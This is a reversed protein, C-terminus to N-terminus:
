FIETKKGRRINNWEITIYNDRDSRSQEHLFGLAHMMEHAAIGKWGCGRGISIQQRGGTRGVMSWCGDESVFEVYDRQTTKPVFRICTYRQYDAMAQDIANREQNGVGATIVYPVAANPWKRNNGALANRDDM